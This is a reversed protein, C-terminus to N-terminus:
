VRRMGEGGGMGKMWGESGVRVEETGPGAKAKLAGEVWKKLKPVQYWEELRWQSQSSELVEDPIMTLMNPPLFQDGAAAKILEHTLETLDGKRGLYIAKAACARRGTTSMVLTPRSLGLLIGDVVEADDTKLLDTPLPCRM